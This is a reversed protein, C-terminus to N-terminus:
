FERISAAKYPSFFKIPLRIGFMFALGIAMDSYGSFDFYIQFSYGIAATWGDLMSIAGGTAAHDFIVDIHPVFPDISVSKKFLGVSFLFLGLSFHDARLRWDLKRALQPLMELHSVIPGAILQPFFSVFFLYNTFKVERLEGRYVSVLFAIQQFTFFSIGLPLVLEAMPISGGFLTNLNEIFFDFYKLPKDRQGRNSSM